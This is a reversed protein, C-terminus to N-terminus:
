CGNGTNSKQLRCFPSQCFLWCWNHSVHNISLHVNTSFHILIPHYNCSCQCNPSSQMFSLQSNPSWIYIYICLAHDSTSFQTIISHANTSSQTIIAHYNPSHIMIIPHISIATSVQMSILHSSVHIIRSINQYTKQWNFSFLIFPKTFLLSKNNNQQQKQQKENAHMCMRFLNGSINVKHLCDNIIPHILFEMLSYCFVNKSWIQSRSHWCHLLLM